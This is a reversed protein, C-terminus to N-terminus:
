KIVGMDQLTAIANIATNISDFYDDYEHSNRMDNLDNMVALYYDEEVTYTFEFEDTTTDFIVDFKYNHKTLYTKMATYDSVACRTHRITKM